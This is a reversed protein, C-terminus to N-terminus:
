IDLGLLSFLGVTIATLMGGAIALLGTIVVLDGSYKLFELRDASGAQLSGTFAFGLIFWLVLLLHFCALVLTDSQDNNPLANIFILAILGSGLIFTIKEKSLKNKYIFYAALAPFLIFGINQPYF